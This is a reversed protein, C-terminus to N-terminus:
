SNEANIVKRPSYKPGRLNNKFMNALRYLAPVQTGISFVTQQSKSLYPYVLERIHRQAKRDGQSIAKSMLTQGIGSFMANPIAYHSQHKLLARFKATLRKENIGATRSYSAPNNCRYVSSPVPDYAWTRDHVLRLMLEFDEAGSLEPDFGGVERLRSSRVAMSSLELLGHTQYLSFYKMHDLNNTPETFPSDSMSVVRNVNISYHEAAALFVVDNSNAMLKHIRELHDPKWWDDADLFAIWEATAQAIGANRAAAPGVNQTHLITLPVPSAQLRELSRDTSGDDVVIVEQPPLTQQAISQLTHDLWQEANYCPIVVSFTM